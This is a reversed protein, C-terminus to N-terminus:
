VAQGCHAPIETHRCTGCLARQVARDVGSTRRSTGPEGWLWNSRHQRCWPRVTRVCPRTADAATAAVASM